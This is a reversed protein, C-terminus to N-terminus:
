LSRGIGESNFTKSYTVNGSKKSWRTIRTSSADISWYSSCSDQFTKFFLFLYLVTLGDLGVGDQSHLISEYTSMLWEGTIRVANRAMRQRNSGSGTESRPQFEILYPNEYERADDNRRFHNRIARRIELAMQDFREQIPVDNGPNTFTFSLRHTRNAGSGTSVLQYDIGVVM